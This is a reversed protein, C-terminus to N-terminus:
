LGFLPLCPELGAIEVEAGPFDARELRFHTHPVPVGRPSAVDDHTARYGLKASVRRSAPNDGMAGSTIALAGLRSFALEIVAARQETGLGRGQHAQELWSGTEVERQRPFERATLGQSGIPVGDLFAVLNLNWADVQWNRLAGLHFDLFPELRLDDTWPVYFPMTEPPHIGRQAAEFLAALEDETPLRLELRPTTLRLGYLPEVNV